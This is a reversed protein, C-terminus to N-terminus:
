ASVEEDDPTGIVFAIAGLPVGLALAMAEANTRSCGRQGLEIMAILTPSVPPRMRNALDAQSFGNQERWAKVAEPLVQVERKRM